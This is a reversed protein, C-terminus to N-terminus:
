LVEVNLFRLKRNGTTIVLLEDQSVRVCSHGQNMDFEGPGVLPMSGNKSWEREINDMWKRVVEPSKPSSTKVLKGDCYTRQKMLM